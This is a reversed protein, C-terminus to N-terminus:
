ALELDYDCDFLERAFSKDDVLEDQQEHVLDDQTGDLNNIVGYKVFVIWDDRWFHWYAGAIWSAIIEELPKKQYGGIGDAM